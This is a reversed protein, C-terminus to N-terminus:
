VKHSNAIWDSEIYRTLHDANIDDVRHMGIIPFVKRAQNDVAVFEKLDAAATNFAVDNALRKGIIKAFGDEIQAYRYAYENMKDLQKKVKAVATQVTTIYDQLAPIKPSIRNFTNTVESYDSVFSRKSSSTEAKIFNRMLTIQTKDPLSKWEVTALIESIPKLHPYLALLREASSAPLVMVKTGTQIIGNASLDKFLRQTDDYSFIEDFMHFTYASGKAIVYYSIDSLDDLAKDHLQGQSSFMRCTKVLRQREVDSVDIDSTNTHQKVGAVKMMQKMLQVNDPHFVFVHEHSQNKSIYEVIKYQAVKGDNLIFQTSGPQLVYTATRQYKKGVRATTSFTGKQKTQKEGNKDFLTFPLAYGYKPIVVGNEINVEQADFTQTQVVELGKTMDFTIPTKKWMIHGNTKMVDNALAIMISRNVTSKYGRLLGDNIVDIAEILTDASNRITDFEERVTKFIEDIKGEIAAITKATYELHERSAVFDVSGNDFFMHIQTGYQKLVSLRNEDIKGTLPGVDINYAVNAQIAYSNGSGTVIGFHETQYVYEVMPIEVLSAGRHLNPQLSFFRFILKARHEFNWIDEPSITLKIEVGSREDSDVETMKVIDPCGDESIIASYITKKGRYFSTVLFSSVIAFPSKSGLGLSGNFDNSDRKNSEFYTTYMEFVQEESLGIGYDRVRFIPDLQTPLYVDFPVTDQGPRAAIDYTGAEANFKTGQSAFKHGDVANTSLERIVATIPDSYIGKSLIRFAEATSAIGFAKRKFNSTQEIKLSLDKEVIM